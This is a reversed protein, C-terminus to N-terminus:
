IVSQREPEAFRYLGGLSWSPIPRDSQQSRNVRQPRERTKRAARKAQKDMDAAARLLVDRNKETRLLFATADVKAYEDLSLLVVPKKGSRRIIVPENRDAALSALKALSKKAEALTRDHM